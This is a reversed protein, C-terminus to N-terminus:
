RSICFGTTSAKARTPGSVSCRVAVCWKPRRNPEAESGADRTTALRNPLKQVAAALVITLLVYAATLPGSGPM